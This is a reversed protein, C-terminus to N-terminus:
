VFTYVMLMDWGICSTLGEEKCSERIRASEREMVHVREGLYVREYMSTHTRHHEMEM